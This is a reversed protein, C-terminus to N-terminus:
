KVSTSGISNCGIGSTSGISNCGIGSTPGISNCGIGSTVGISTLGIGLTLGILILRCRCLLVAAVFRCLSDKFDHVLTLPGILKYVPRPYPLGRGFREGCALRNKGGHPYLACTARGHVRAPFRGCLSLRSLRFLYM